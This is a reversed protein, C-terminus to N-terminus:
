GAQDVAAYGPGSLLNPDNKITLILEVPSASPQSVEPTPNVTPQSIVAEPTAAPVTPTTTAQMIVATPATTPLYIVAPVTGPQTVDESTIPSPRSLNSVFLYVGLGVAVLLAMTLAGYIFQNSQKLVVTIRRSRKLRPAITTYNMRSFPIVVRRAIVSYHIRQQLAEHSDLNTRCSPCASLHLDLEEREADPLLHYIYNILQDNNLHVTM